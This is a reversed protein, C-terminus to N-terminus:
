WRVENGCNPCKLPPADKVNPRLGTYIWGGCNPCTVRWEGLPEGGSWRIFFYIAFFVSGAFPLGVLPDNNNWLGLITITGISIIAISLSIVFMIFSPEKYKQKVM